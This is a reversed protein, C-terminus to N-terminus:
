MDIVKNLILVTKGTSAYGSIVQQRLPHDWVYTQEPTLFIAQSFILPKEVETKGINTRRKIDGVFTMEARTEEDLSTEEHEKPSPKNQMSAAASGGEENAPTVPLNQKSTKSKKMKAISAQQKDWSKELYNQKIISELVNEKALSISLFEQKFSMTIQSFQSCRLILFTSSLQKYLEIPMPKLTSRKEVVNSYWWTSFASPSSVDEAFLYLFGQKLRINPVQRREMKPFALVKFMNINSYNNSCTTDAAAAATSTSEELIDRLRLLESIWDQADRVEKHDKDFETMSPKVEILFIIGANKLMVVVDTLEADRMSSKQYKLKTEMQESSSKVKVNLPYIVPIKIGFMQNIMEVKSKSVTPSHIIVANEDATNELQTKFANFVKCETNYKTVLGNQFRNNTEKEADSIKLSYMGGSAFNTPGKWDATMMVPLPIIIGPNTFCSEPDCEKSYYKSLYKSCADFVDETTTKGNPLKVKYIPQNESM